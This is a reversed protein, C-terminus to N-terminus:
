LMMVRFYGYIPLMICVSIVEKAIVLDNLGYLVFTPVKNVKLKYLPPETQNYHVLNETEGYDYEQFRPTAMWQLFHSLAKGSSEAPTHEALM